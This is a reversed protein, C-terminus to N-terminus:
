KQDLFSQLREKMGLVADERSLFEEIPMLKWKQGEHLSINTIRESSIEAVFFWAIKSSDKVAPFTKKWVIDEEYIDLELEEKLERRACAFPTEEAERGGGPFDWMNAGFLGPKNDRLYVLLKRDVLIAIKTGTFDM